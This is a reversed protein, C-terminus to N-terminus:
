QSDLMEYFKEMAEALVKPNELGVLHGENKIITINKERDLNPFVKIYDEVDYAM